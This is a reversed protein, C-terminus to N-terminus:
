ESTKPPQIRVSPYVEAVRRIQYLKSSGGRRSYRRQSSVLGAAELERLSKGVTSTSVGVRSAITRHFPFCYGEGDAVASLYVYVKKASTSLGDLKYVDWDASMWGRGQTGGHTARLVGSKKRTYPPSGSPPYIPQSGVPPNVVQQNAAYKSSGSLRKILKRLWSVVRFRVRILFRSKDKTRAFSGRPPASGPISAANSGPM